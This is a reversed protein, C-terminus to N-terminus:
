EDVLGVFRTGIGDVERRHRGLPPAPLDDPDHEECMVYAFEPWWKKPRQTETAGCLACTLTTWVAKGTRNARSQVLWAPPDSELADLEATTMRAPLGHKVAMPVPIDLRIAADRRSPM